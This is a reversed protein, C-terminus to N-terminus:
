LLKTFIGKMFMSIIFSEYWSSKSLELYFKHFLFYVGFIDGILSSLVTPCMSPVFLSFHGTLKLVNITYM